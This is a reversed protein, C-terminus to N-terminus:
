STDYAPLPLCAQDVTVIQEGSNSDLSGETMIDELQQMRAILQLTDTEAEESM